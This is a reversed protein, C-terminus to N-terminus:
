PPVICHMKIEPTDLYNVIDMAKVFKGIGKLHLHIEQPHDEDELLSAIWTGYINHPLNEPTIIYM